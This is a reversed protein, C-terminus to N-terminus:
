ALVLGKPVEDNELTVKFSVNSQPMYAIVGEPRMFGPAAASGNTRLTAIWQNILSTDFPQEDLLPVVDLGPVQWLEEGMWRKVNFLSFRREALGYGRQIGKGWWEGYHYGEGLVTILNVHNDQVWGAFGFNDDKGPNITRTRSQASVHFEGDEGIAIVVAANTGDIKETIIMDRNLRGIKPWPKFESM